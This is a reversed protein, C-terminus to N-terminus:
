SEIGWDQYADDSRASEKYTEFGVDNPNQSSNKAYVKTAKHWKDSRLLDSSVHFIKIIYIPDYKGVIDDETTNTEGNPDFNADAILTIDCPHSRCEQSCVEQNTTNWSVNSIERLREFNLAHAVEIRIMELISIIIQKVVNPAVDAAKDEQEDETGAELVFHERGLSCM